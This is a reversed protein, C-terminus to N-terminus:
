WAAVCAIRGSGIVRGPTGCTVIVNFFGAARSL